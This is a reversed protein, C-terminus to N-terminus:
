VQRASRQCEPRRGDVFMCGDPQDAVNGVHYHDELEDPSGAHAVRKAKM